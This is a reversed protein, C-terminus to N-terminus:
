EKIIEVVNEAVTTDLLKDTNEIVSQIFDAFSEAEKRDKLLISHASKDKLSIVLENEIIELIGTIFTEKDDKIYILSALKQAEYADECIIRKKM